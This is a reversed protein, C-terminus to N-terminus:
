GLLRHLSTPGPVGDADSGSYGLSKQYDQYNLTDADTWTPGPGVKYHSGFGANVLAEGVATVQPGIAGYGYTQGDITVQYRAVSPTPTGSGADVIAQARHIIEGFQARVHDGPCDYHGGWAAGGMGHWGLGKEGPQNALQIPVGYAKHAFALIEAVRSIQGDALSDGGNGENEVSLYQHNGAAQAWARDKTDVWQEAYGDRRTGFHSSAQSQPNNFWSKTGDFTGDMIHVVVGLVEDQGNATFNKVPDFTWGTIM